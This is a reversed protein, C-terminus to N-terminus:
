TLAEYDAIMSAAIPEWSFRASACLAASGMRSAEAPESLMKILARALADRDSPPVLYGTEGHTVDEALAGVSTAIVPCGFAYAVQLVGSATASRYPLVVVTADAMRGAVQDVTQYTPDLEVSVAVGAKEILGVLHAPDVGEPEGAIVLRADVEYRVLEWAAVLDEVGKSPRLGGFFLATPSAPTSRTPSDSALEVFLQENGHPISRTRSTAVDFLEHFRARNTEGHLYILDFCAFVAQNGRRHYWETLRGHERPEFEHCVQTVTLGHRRMRRLFVAQFPFHIVSLQVIDPRQRILHSTLRHWEWTYRVARVVRRAKRALRVV